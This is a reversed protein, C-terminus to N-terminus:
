QRSLRLYFTNSLKPDSWHYLGPDLGNPRVLYFSGLNVEAGSATYWAATPRDFALSVWNGGTQSGDPLTFPSSPWRFVQNENLDVHVSYTAIADSGEYGKLDNLTFVAILQTLDPSLDPNVGGYFSLTASLTGPEGREVLYGFDFGDIQPVDEAYFVASALETGQIRNTNYGSNLLTLDTNDYFTTSEARVGGGLRRVEGRVVGANPLGSQAQGRIGAGIGFAAMAACLVRKM